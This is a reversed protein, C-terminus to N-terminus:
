DRYAPRFASGAAQKVCSSCPESMLSARLQVHTERKRQQAQVKKRKSKGPSPKYAVPERAEEVLAITDIPAAAFGADQLAVFDLAGMAQAVAYTALIRDRKANILNTRAAFLDQEINLVDYNTREGLQYAQRIGDLAKQAAAVQAGSASVRAKAAQLQGWATTVSAKVQDRIADAELQRQSSVHRSQRTRALVEGGQFLPVRVQALVTGDTEEDGPDSRNFSNTLSGTLNVTPLFDSEDIKVQLQAAEAGFSAAYIAPNKSLATEIAAEQSGALLQDAGSVPTLQGPPKGIVQQYTAMSAELVAEAAGRQSRGAAVRYEVEAVEAGTVDQFEKRDNIQTLQKELSMIYARNQEVLARSTYVDLYARVANFITTQETSRLTEQAAFDQYRAQDTSRLARFGDFLPQTIQLGYSRPRTERRFDSNGDLSSSGSGSSGPGETGKVSRYGTEGRAEVKPLFGARARPINEHTALASQRQANLTPNQEFAQAIAEQVTEAEATGISLAAATSSIVYVLMRLDRIFGIPRLACGPRGVSGGTRKFNPRGVAYIM